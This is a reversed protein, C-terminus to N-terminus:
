SLDVKVATVVKDDDRKGERPPCKCLPQFEKIATPQGDKDLPGNENDTRRAEAMNLLADRVLNLDGQYFDLLLAIEHDCVPVGIGDSNLVIHDGDQLIFPPANSGMNNITIYNAMGGIAAVIVNKQAIVVDFLEAEATAEAVRSFFTYVESPTLSDVNRGSAELETLAKDYGFTYALSHGVDRFVVEGNRIVRWDSDGCHIGYFKDGHQFAVSMTSGMPTRPAYIDSSHSILIQEMVVALDAMVFTHRVDEPTTIWGAMASIEFVDKAIGSAVEGGQHGGMGDFVAHLNIVSGDSLHVEASSFNDECKKPTGNKDRKARMDSHEYTIKTHEIRTTFGLAGILVDFQAQFYAADLLSSSRMQGDFAALHVIPQKYERDRSDVVKSFARSLYKTQDGSLVGNPMYRGSLRVGLGNAERGYLTSVDASTVLLEALGKEERTLNQGNAFRVKHAAGAATHLDLTNRRWYNLREHQPTKFWLYHLANLTQNIQNFADILEKRDSSTIGALQKVWTLIQIDAETLELNQAFKRGASRMADLSPYTSNWHSSLLHENGNLWADFIELRAAMESSSTHAIAKFDDTKPVQPVLPHIFFSDILDRQTQNSEIAAAFFLEARTAPAFECKESISKICERAEPIADKWNQEKWCEAVQLNMRFERVGSHFNMFSEFIEENLFVVDIDLVKAIFGREVPTLLQFITQIQPKKPPATLPEVVCGYKKSVARSIADISITSRNAAFQRPNIEAM